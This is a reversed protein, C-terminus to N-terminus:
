PLDEMNPLELISVLNELIPLCMHGQMAVEQNSLQVVQILHKYGVLYQIWQHQPLLNHYKRLVLDLKYRESKPTYLHGM